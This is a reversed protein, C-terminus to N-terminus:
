YEINFPFDRHNENGNLFFIRMNKNLATINAMEYDNLKFDFIDFNEMMRYKHASKPIPIVNRQLHWRLIVQANTKDHTIAIQKIVEDNFLLDQNGHGLPAYATVAVSNNHCFEILKNQTFYPNVEFQNVTPKIEAADLVRQLQLHNFNSVGISKVLGSKFADEMGRWTELLDVGSDIYSGNPHKPHWVTTNEKWATPWHVLLLDIYDIQLNNLSKRVSEMVKPRSHYTNWVKTTIWLEERKVIGNKLIDSLAVGIGPENDYKLATDIHRYGINIADRIRKEALTNPELKFTGFGLQPIENGDALKLKPVVSQESPLTYFYYLVANLIVSYM